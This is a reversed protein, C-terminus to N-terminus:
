LTGVVSFNSIAFSLQKGLIKQLGEGIPFQRYPSFCDDHETNGDILRKASYAGLAAAWPLGAAGAIYYISNQHKDLGAIPMIDKSIGILGPWLYEFTVTIDPFKTKFYNTLKYFMRENHYHPTSAYTSLLSAGGLLMRNDKGLRFYNYILDTDWVMMARDPFIRYIDTDKLPSSMMLFTQAHYVQSSLRGLDPTFRDTCLIITEAEVKGLPTLVAHDGVTLVPSEEFISVGLNELVDKMGQCYLYSNIGFSGPYSVGGYYGQSGIINSLQDKPYLSSTYHLNQRTTHESKIDESFAKESSAVVLTDQVLYDCNISYDIINKQIIRVGGIVFEWLQRGKEAGYKEVMDGLSFESDPTIFGSSKGSAGAGCFSKEVLAVKLGKHAFSQAATIGAMGGGVVAVDVKVTGTLQKSMERNLYWFVEDQPLLYPM